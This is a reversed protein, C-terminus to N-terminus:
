KKIKKYTKVFTLIKGEEFREALNCLTRAFPGYEPGMKDIQKARNLIGRM